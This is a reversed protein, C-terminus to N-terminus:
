LRLRVLCREEDLGPVDLPIVSCHSSLSRVREIEADPVQGKMALLEGHKSLLHACSEIMDDLSAYARSLVADFGTESKFTEVRAHVVDINKLDLAARAHVLFRTKKGNSDLLTFRRDPNVIALPLGPLGGGTGVDIFRQGTLHPNVALSDLVHRTLMAQPDRIATLNFRQNWHTLLAIFELLKDKAIGHCTSDALSSSSLELADLGRQLQDALM